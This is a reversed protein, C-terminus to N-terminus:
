LPFSPLFSFSLFTVVHHYYFERGDLGASKRSGRDTISKKTGFFLNVLSFERFHRYCLNAEKEGISIWIWSCLKGEFQQKMKYTKKKARYLFSRINLCSKSRDYIKVGFSVYIKNFICSMLTKNQMSTTIM